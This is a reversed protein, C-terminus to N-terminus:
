EPFETEKMEEGYKILLKVKQEATELLKQLDKTLVVGREFLSISEELAAEGNELKAVIAELEEMGSEFTMKKAPM